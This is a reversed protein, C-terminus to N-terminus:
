RNQSGPVLVGGVTHIANGAADIGSRHLQSQCAEKVDYLQIM